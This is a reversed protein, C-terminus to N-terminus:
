SYDGVDPLRRSILSPNKKTCEKMTVFATITTFMPVVVSSSTGEETVRRDPEPEGSESFEARTWDKRRDSRELSGEDM